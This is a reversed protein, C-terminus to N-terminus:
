DCVEVRPRVWGYGDWVPEGHVWYCPRPAEPEPGPVAYLPPPEPYRPGAYFRPRDPLPDSGIAIGADIGVDIAWAERHTWPMAFLISGATLAMVLHRM